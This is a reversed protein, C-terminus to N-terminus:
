TVTECLPARRQRPRRAAPLLWLAGRQEIEDDYVIAAFQAGPAFDSTYSQRTIIAM